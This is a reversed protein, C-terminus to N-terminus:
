NQDVAHEALLITKKQLAATSRVGQSCCCVLDHTRIGSPATKKKRDEWCHTMLCIGLPPAVNNIKKEFHIGLKAAKHPVLIIQMIPHFFSATKSIGIQPLDM